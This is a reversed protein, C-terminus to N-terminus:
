GNLEDKMLGLDNGIFKADLKQKKLQNIYSYCLIHSLNFVFKPCRKFVIIVVNKGIKNPYYIVLSWV